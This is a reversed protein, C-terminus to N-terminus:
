TMSHKLVGQLFRVLIEEQGSPAGGWKGQPQIPPFDNSGKIGPASM